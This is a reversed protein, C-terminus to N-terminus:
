GVVKLEGSVFFSSTVCWLITKGAGAVPSLPGDLAYHTSLLLVYTERLDVVSFPRDEM